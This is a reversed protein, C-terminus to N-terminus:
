CSQVVVVLRSVLKCEYDVIKMEDIHFLISSINIGGPFTKGLNNAASCVCVLLNVLHRVLM